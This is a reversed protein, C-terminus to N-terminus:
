GRDLAAQLVQRAIPAATDGGAGARVVLVGVAVRPARKGAPAFAAFWADTDTEDSETACAEPNVPVPGDTAPAVECRRTTQLEATGTKGAVPIGPLAAAAGTGSTVVAQMLKEVTAAVAPTTVRRRPAVPQRRATDLDLTLRPRAGGNAITAAVSAM